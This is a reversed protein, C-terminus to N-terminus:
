ASRALPLLVRMVTGKGPESVVDLRGGLATAYDRSEFVGIGFGSQKTTAFPRFLKERIFEAAMGPGHDEIEIVAMKERDKLRVEICGNGGGADVANQVLHEVIARLRHEDAAVAAQQSQVDLSIHAQLENRHAVIDSLLPALAIAKTKDEALPASLQRLMRNLKEVSRRLTENADRQFDENDRHREANRLILSLQSALNKIDHAIFAFRKNFAEFQRAESLARSTEAEALYSAAERGVIKLLDLDEWTLARPARPRGILLIGFLREHRILPVILWLRDLANFWSPLEGLGDYHTPESTFEDVDIVWQTRELFRGLPSAAALVPEIRDLPWRSLNWSAAPAFNGPQAALWLGGEPSDMIDCMAQIVGSRLDDDSQRESVTRIFRLWEARYDYKYRLLNKELFVRLYARFSASFVSVAFLLAAACLFIAQLFNSWTGGLHQVYYAVVAMTILYLGAGVLTASHLVARRSMAIEPGEGRARAAYVALFPMVIVSVAGRALFLDISLRRFLLGNAYFFFDFTFLAGLGLCLYKIRWHRSAPSNRVLNEILAIGLLSLGLRGAMVLFRTLDVASRNAVSGAVLTAVAIFVGLAAIAVAWGARQAPSLWYLASLLLISWVCNRLIDLLEDGRGISGGLGIHYAVIAAWALTAASAVVLLLNTLTRRWWTVVLVALILYCFAACLYGIFGAEM